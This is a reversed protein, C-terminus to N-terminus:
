RRRVPIRWIRAPSDPELRVRQFALQWRHTRGLLLEEADYVEDDGIGLHGTPFDLTTEQANYPDLSVAMFTAHSDDPAWKAYFLVQDNDCPHFTLNDYEQLAPDERRIHNLRTIWDRINDPSDWDRARIEYKENNRYEERDPHGENDCLEFGSYMGWVSSLTTALAARIRFASPPADELYEHLIDPTNPFLNGRFYERMESQTLETFYETLEQKANRWTFYTYSQTFGAKALARMMKPRTFAEALFLVDPHQRQIEGICWQWFQVPKTHPNDVRFIKVGQEIWYLFVSEWERWQEEWNESYFDLPYIDQYKKPPNEAYKITGDPRHFFWEPHQEVYPHDPSVQIAYDLAIELGHEHAAKVLRRFDELTGLEPHIAKHGGEESGVAYPSGPEGPGATLANDKGKRHAKGIPHIPPFYLVDFGMDRVYPLRAIVDDFTGHRDPDNSASRPFLEYWSAFRAKVRDVYLELRRDYETLDARPLCSEMILDLHEDYAAEYRDEASGKEVRERIAALTRREDKRAKKEAEGILIAGEQLEVEYEVGADHKRKLDRRWTAFRDTWAIVTYEWGGIESLDDTEAQWRDNELHTMRAERWKREGNRRYRVAAAVIDHGDRFIDAEVTLRDGEERKVAYRGCNLQPTVAEIIIRRSNDLRPPM